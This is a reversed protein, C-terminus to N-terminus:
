LLPMASTKFLMRPQPEYSADCTMSVIDIMSLGSYLKEVWSNDVASLYKGILVGSYYSDFDGLAQRM